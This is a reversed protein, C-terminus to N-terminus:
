RHNKHETYDSHCPDIWNRQSNYRHDKHRSYDLGGRGMLLVEESGNLEAFVLRLRPIGPTDSASKRVLDVFTEANM